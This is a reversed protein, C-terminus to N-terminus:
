TECTRHIPVLILTECSMSFPLHRVACWILKQQRSEAQACMPTKNRNESKLPSLCYMVYLPLIRASKIPFPLQRDCTVLFSVVHIGLNYAILRFMKGKRMARLKEVVALLKPLYRSDAAFAVTVTKPVALDASSRTANSLRRNVVIEGKLATTSPDALCCQLMLAVLSWWLTLIPRFAM